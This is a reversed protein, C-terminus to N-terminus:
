RGPASLAHRLAERFAWTALDLFRRAEHPGIAAAITFLEDAVQQAGAAAAEGVDALVQVRAGEALLENARAILGVDVLYNGDDDRRLVGVEALRDAAGPRQVALTEVTSLMLAGLRGSGAIEAPETLLLELAPEGGRESLAAGIERLSLGRDLLARVTRLQSLHAPGYIGRRGLLRPPDLLGRQRYARVNRPTMGAADALEVLTYDASLM